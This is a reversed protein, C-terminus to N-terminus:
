IAKRRRLWGVAGAGLSALIMAGPVPVRPPLEGEFATVNVNDIDIDAALGGTRGALQVRYEYPNMGSIFLEDFVTVAPGGAGFVDPSLAVSLNAGGVVYELSVTAAHFVGAVFDVDVPNVAADGVQSGDWHATVQNTGAPYIDFGVGFVGEYNPREAAIGSENAGPGSVGYVSTPLFAISFGDAPASLPSSIRFQFSSDVRPYLGADTRDYAYSNHNNLVGDNVLRLFNGSPGGPLVMPLPGAGMATATVNLNPPDFSDILVGYCPASVMLSILTLLALKKM